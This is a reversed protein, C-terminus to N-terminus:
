IIQSIKEQKSISVKMGTTIMGQPNEWPTRFAARTLTYQNRLCLFRDWDGPNPFRDVAM